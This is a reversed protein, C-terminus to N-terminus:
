IAPKPPAIHAGGPTNTDNDSDDDDDSSKSALTKQRLKEDIGGWPRSDFKNTTRAFNSVFSGLFPLTALLFRARPKPQRGWM